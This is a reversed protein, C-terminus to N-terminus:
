DVEADGVAALEVEAEVKAELAVDAAAEGECVESEVGVGTPAMAPPAAPPKTKRHAIM